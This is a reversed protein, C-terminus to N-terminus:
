DLLKGNAVIESKLDKNSSPESDKDKLFGRVVTTVHFDFNTNALYHRKLTDSRMKNKCVSYELPINHNKSPMTVTRILYRREKDTTSKLKFSALNLKSQNITQLTM